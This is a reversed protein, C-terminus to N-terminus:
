MTEWAYIDIDFKQRSLYLSTVYPHKESIVNHFSFVLVHNQPPETYAAPSLSGVPNVSMSSYYVIIFILVCWVWIMSIFHFSGGTFM